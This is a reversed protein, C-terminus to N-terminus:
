PTRGEEKKGTMKKKAPSEECYCDWIEAFDYKFAPIPFFNAAFECWPLLNYSIRASDSSIGTMIHKSDVMIVSKLNETSRRIQIRNNKAMWGPFEQVGKGIMIRFLVGQDTKKTISEIIEPLNYFDSKLGVSGVSMLVEKKAKSFFNLLAEKFKALSVDDGNLSVSEGYVFVFIDLIKEPMRKIKGM